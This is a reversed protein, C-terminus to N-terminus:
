RGSARPTCIQGQVRREEVGRDLAGQAHGELGVLSLRPLPVRDGVDGVGDVHRQQERAGPRVVDGELGRDEVVHDLVAVAPVLLADAREEALLDAGRDSVHGLHLPVGPFLPLLCADPVDGPHVQTRHHDLGRVLRM